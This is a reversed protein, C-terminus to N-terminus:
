TSHAKRNALALHSRGSNVHRHRVRLVTWATKDVMRGDRCTDAELVVGEIEEHTPWPVSMEICRGAARCEVRPAARGPPLVYNLPPEVKGKALWHLRVEYDVVPSIPGRLEVRVFFRQRDRVAYVAAIDAAAAAAVKPSDETPDEIAPPIGRWDNAHGDVTITHVKVSHLLGLPLAGFLESSRAFRLLYTGMVRMQTRYRTIAEHKRQAVGADLPLSEWRTGRGVLAAPPTMPASLNLGPPAPWSNKDAAHVFYLWLSVRDLMGLEHLAAMTFCYLAWHDPHDDDPHPCFIMTPKFNVILTKLNQIMSRGCYPAGPRLSNPYPDHDRRTHPSTYLQSPEWCRLWMPAGSGDPYGLFTVDRAPLGLYSLAAVSEAQRKRAMILYDRPTVQREHFVLEVARRFGDGSNVFVVRVQAGEALARAILGGCALTEDDCHPSVVLVRDRATPIAM